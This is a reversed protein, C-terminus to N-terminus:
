KTKRDKNRGSFTELGANCNPCVIRLNDLRNDNHIGNIHDIILSIKMGNWNEDQGCLCCIPNLLKEKYLRRKLSQRNYTSNEILIDNIDIEQKYFNRNAREVQTEFHDISLNYLQIYKKLVQYNGGAARLGMTVLVDKYSKSEKVVSILYEKDYISNNKSDSIGIKNAKKRIAYIKRNLIESCYKAGKNKYNEKLFKIEDENWKKSM